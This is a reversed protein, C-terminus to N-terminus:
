KVKLIGRMMTSHGPFTCLFPYDGPKKPATFEITENKKGDLMKTHALVNPGLALWGKDNGAAISANAVDDASGPNVLVWNHQMSSLNKFTLKVTQGAKVILEKKDFAMEEGQTAIVLTVSKANGDPKSKPESKAKPPAAQVTMMVLALVGVTSLIKKTMLKKDFM